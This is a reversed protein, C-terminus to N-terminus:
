PPRDQDTDESSAPYDITGINYTVSVDGWHDRRLFISVVHPISILITNKNIVTVEPLPHPDFPDYKFLPTKTAQGTRSAYVTIASTHVILDCDTESMEFDFGLPSIIQRQVETVCTYPTPALGAMALLLYLLCLMVTLGVVGVLLMRAFTALASM